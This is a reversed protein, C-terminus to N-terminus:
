WNFRPDQPGVVPLKKQGEVKANAYRHHGDYLVGQHVSLPRTVEGPEVELYADPHVDAWTDVTHRLQEPHVDDRDHAFNAAKLNGVDETNMFQIGLHDDASM